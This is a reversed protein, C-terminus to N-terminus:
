DPHTPRLFTSLPFCMSTSMVCVSWFVRDGHLTKRELKCTILGLHTYDLVTSRSGLFNDLQAAVGSGEGVKFLSNVHM